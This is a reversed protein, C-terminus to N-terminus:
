AIEGLLREVARRVVDPRDLEGRDLRERAADVADPRVDPEARAFEAFRLAEAARRAEPSIAVGDTAQAEDGRAAAARRREAEVRAADEPRQPNPLGGIRSVDAM